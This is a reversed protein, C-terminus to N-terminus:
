WVSTPAPVEFGAVKRRTSPGSGHRGGVDLGGDAGVVAAVALVGVAELLVVLVLHDQLGRRGVDLVQVETAPPSRSRGAVVVHAEDLVVPLAGAQAGPAQAPLHPQVAHLDGLEGVELLGAPDLEVGDRGLQGVPELPDAHM